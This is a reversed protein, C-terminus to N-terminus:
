LNANSAMVILYFVSSGGMHPFMKLYATLNSFKGQLKSLVFLFFFDLRLQVFRNFLLKVEASRLLM